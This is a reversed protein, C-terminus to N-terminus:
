LSDLPGLDEHRGDPHVRVLRGDILHNTAIGREHLGRIALSIAHSVGEILEEENPVEDEQERSADPRESM